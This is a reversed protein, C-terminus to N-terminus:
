EANNEGGNTTQYFLQEYTLGSKAILSDIERKYFDSQGLLLKRARDHVGGGYTHIRGLMRMFERRGIRNENLYTRLGEYVCAEKRYPRFGGQTTHRGIAMAVCQYSVGYHDAIEKYIHGKERMQQYLEYRKM